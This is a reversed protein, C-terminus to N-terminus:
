QTRSRVCRDHRDDGRDTGTKEWIQRLFSAVSTKGATGTVAAIIDPQRGHLRAAILALARRPDDAHIVPLDFAPIAAGTTALFASAGAEAAAAAYTIGDVKTGPLAAFIVGPLVSRSDATIGLIDPDGGSGTVTAITDALDSLRM